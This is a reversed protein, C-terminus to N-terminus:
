MTVASLANVSDSRFEEAFPFQTEFLLAAQAGGVFLYGLVDQLVQEGRNEVPRQAVEVILDLESVDDEGDKADLPQNHLHFPRTGEGPTTM